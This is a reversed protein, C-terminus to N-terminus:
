EHRVITLLLHHSPKDVNNQIFKANIGLKKTARILNVIILYIDALSNENHQFARKLVSPESPYQHFRAILALCQTDSDFQTSM